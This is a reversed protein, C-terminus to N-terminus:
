TYIYELNLLKGVKEFGTKNKRSSKSLSRRAINIGPQQAAMRLATKQAVPMM